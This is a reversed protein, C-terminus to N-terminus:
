RPLASPLLFAPAGRKRQAGVFASGIAHEILAFRGGAASGDMGYRAGPPGLQGTKTERAPVVSNALSLNIFSVYGSEKGYPKDNPL